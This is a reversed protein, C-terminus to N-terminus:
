QLFSGLGRIGKILSMVMDYPAAQLKSTLLDEFILKWIKWSNSMNAVTFDIGSNVMLFEFMGTNQM